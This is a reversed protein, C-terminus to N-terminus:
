IIKELIHVAAKELQSHIGSTKLLNELDLKTQGKKEASDLYKKRYDEIIDLAEVDSVSDVTAKIKGIDSIQTREKIFDLEQKTLSYNMEAAYVLLFALFENYTWNAHNTTNMVKFKDTFTSSHTSYM